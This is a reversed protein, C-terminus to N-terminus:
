GTERGTARVRMRVRVGVDRMHRVYAYCLDCLRGCLHVSPHVSPHMCARMHVCVCARSARVPRVPRVPRVCARVCARMTSRTRAHASVNEHTHVCARVPRVCAHVHVCVNM